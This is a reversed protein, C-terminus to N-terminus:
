LVEDIYAVRERGWGAAGGSGGHGAGNDGDNKGGHIRAHVDFLTYFKRPTMQWFENESRNLIVTAVYFM